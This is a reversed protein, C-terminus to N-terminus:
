APSECPLGLAEAARTMRQDLTVLRGVGANLAVGIHLADGARLGLSFDLMLDNARSFDPADLPLIMLSHETMTDFASIARRAADPTVTQMRVRIGLASVFETLTWRSLAVQSPDTSAFWRRMARSSQENVYLPVVASADIYSIM